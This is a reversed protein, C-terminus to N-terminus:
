SFGSDKSSAAPIMENNLIDLGQRPTKEKEACVRSGENGSKCEATTWSGVLEQKQVNITRATISTM